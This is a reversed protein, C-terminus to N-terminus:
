KDTIVPVISLKKVYDFILFNLAGFTNSTWMRVNLGKFFGRWGEERMVERVVPWWKINPEVTGGGALIVTRSTQIRTKVLDFPACALCATFSAAFGAALSVRLFRGDGPPPMSDTAAPGFFFWRARQDREVEALIFQKSSEYISYYVACFPLATLLSAVYGRFLFRRVGGEDRIRQLMTPNPANYISPIVLSPPPSPTFAASAISTTTTTHLGRGTSIGQASVGLTNVTVPSTSSSIAAATAMSKAAAKKYEMDVTLQQSVVDFPVMLSVTILASISGLVASVVKDNTLLEPYVGRNKNVWVRMWDYAGFQILKAATSATTFSVAGQFLSAVGGARLRQRIVEFVRDSVAESFHAQQLVRVTRLPYFIFVPACNFLAGYFYYRRFDIAHGPPVSAPDRSM